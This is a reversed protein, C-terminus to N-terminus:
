KEILIQSKFPKLKLKKILEEYSKFNDKELFRLLQRRQGVKRLLGRRSSFDKEHKKLHDTLQAIEESLIAIQVESSGTDSAHTKFKKIIKEKRNKELM